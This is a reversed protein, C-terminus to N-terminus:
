QVQRLLCHPESPSGKTARFSFSFPPSKFTLVHQAQATFAGVVVVPYQQLFPSANRVSGRIVSGVDSLAETVPVLPPRQRVSHCVTVCSM